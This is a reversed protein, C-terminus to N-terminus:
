QAKGPSKRFINKTALYGDVLDWYPGAMISERLHKELGSLIDPSLSDPDFGAYELEDKAFDIVRYVGRKKDLCKTCEFGHKADSDIKWLIVSGCEECMVVKQGGINTIM